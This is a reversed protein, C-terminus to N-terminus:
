PERCRQWTKAQPFFPRIPGHVEPGHVQSELAPGAGGRLFIAVGPAFTTGPDFSAGPFGRIGKPGARCVRQTAQKSGGEDRQRLKRDPM